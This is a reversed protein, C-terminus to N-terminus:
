CAVRLRWDALVDALTQEWPVVPAWGLLRRALSGDGSASAIESGRLRATDTAVQTHMGAVELLADLIDGIRRPVGSAINLITGPPLDPGRRLSAVYAGCVDRVDLFDRRSDLGGVRLPPSQRGAEIMAIQRAFAPLVFEDSQGPGTHNFLRLRVVSLGDNATAGLALDAAAKTAAYSNMPAPLATEDLRAGSQFSRGYIEGSSAFVLRCDRAHELLAGALNLTGHLNVRWAHNPDRRADAVTTVAALHICADPQVDRVMNAVAHQDTVDARSAFVLANPFSAELLPRLHRGVFGSAGTMLIRRPETAAM